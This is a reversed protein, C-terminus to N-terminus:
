VNYLSHSIKSCEARFAMSIDGDFRDGRSDPFGASTSVSLIYSVSPISSVNFVLGKLDVPSICM